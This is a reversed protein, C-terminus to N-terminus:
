DRWIAFSRRSRAAAKPISEAQSRRAAMRAERAAIARQVTEANEALRKAERVPDFSAIM